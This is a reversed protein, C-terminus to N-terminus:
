SATRSADAAQEVQEVQKVSEGAVSQAATERATIASDAYFGAVLGCTAAILSWKVVLRDWEARLVYRRVM